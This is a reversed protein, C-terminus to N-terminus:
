GSAEKKESWDYVTARFCRLSLDYGYDRFYLARDGRDSRHFEKWVARGHM